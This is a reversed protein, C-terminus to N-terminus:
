KLQKKLRSFAGTSAVSRSEPFGVWLVIRACLEASDELTVVTVPGSRAITYAIQTVLTTKFTGEDSFVTTVKDRPIGGPVLCELGIGSPLGREPQVGRRLKDQEVGVIDYLSLLSSM